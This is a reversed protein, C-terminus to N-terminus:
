NLYINQFQKSEQEHLLALYRLYNQLYKELASATKICVLDMKEAENLHLLSAMEAFNFSRRALLETDLHDQKILYNRFAEYLADSCTESIVNPLLEIDGAPYLKGEKQYHFKELKFNGLAEVIIEMEGDETVSMIEKVRVITGLNRANLKSSFPIGFPENQDWCEKILQKYRAEFIYLQTYESPLLFINLPFLPCDKM